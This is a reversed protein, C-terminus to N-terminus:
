PQAVPQQIRFPLRAEAKGGLRVHVTYTGFQGFLCNNILIVLGSSAPFAPNNPPTPTIRGEVRPHDLPNGGPDLIGIEFPVEVGVEEPDFQVKGVVYFFPVFAPVSPVYFTDFDAGLLHLRGDSGVAAHNALFLYLLKMGPVM